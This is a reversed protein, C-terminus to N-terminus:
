LKRGGLIRRHLPKKIGKGELETGTPWLIVEKITGSEGSNRLWLNVHLEKGFGQFIRKFYSLWAIVFARIPVPVWLWVWLGAKKVTAMGWSIRHAVVYFLVLLVLLFIYPIWWTEMATYAM